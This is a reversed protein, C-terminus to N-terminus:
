KEQFKDLFAQCSFGVFMAMDEDGPLVIVPSLDPPRIKHARELCAQMAPIANKAKRGLLEITRAAHTVVILNKHGLEKILAPLGLDIEDQLALANAAEIRVSPSPDKLAKALAAKAKESRKEKRACFGIAGWYRVLENQSQLNALLKKEGAMGVHSAAKRVSELDLKGSKGVEWGSSGRFAQWAEYEPLYGLDRTKRVHKIHEKRLQQLIKKQENSNALNSLNNPDKRCDYLEEIPRSPGAFHWQPATMKKPDALRYFEHRIEGLDPWATPQNYGLHSMYNRIYLFDKSRVSRALDRAEDVRDRHGYIYKRSETNLPGLFPKGQMYNPIGTGVLSLVTPGFDVFAVLRDITEGSKAPAYKKWKDPFRIMLPVHMGSDLLARKHRPMGSGHDSYFFVITNDALGDEELQKLISGVEKDMATVCDYFRAVTKRVIHTDSYYPPLSIKDPDHIEETSLKSQVEKQFREYPWVMSRSQHSTMLNFVSFFPKDKDKRKRWHATASSENWSSKIIEEYNGSNYDTKVNNTSYYGDKRLLAPFGKMHSPLPFGSRMQQTGLSPPYSGNILCSRSPSCVPASAFAHSYRVSQKALADINPTIADPDGYCGLVPSMDEATIWLINPKGFSLLPILLSSLTPLCIPHPFLKM